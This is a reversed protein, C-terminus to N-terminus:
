PAQRSHLHVVLKHHYIRACEQGALLLGQLRAAWAM